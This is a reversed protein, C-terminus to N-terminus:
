IKNTFGIVILVDRLLRALPELNQANKLWVTTLAHDGLSSIPKQKCHTQYTNYGDQFVFIVIVFMIYHKFFRLLLTKDPKFGRPTASHNKVRYFVHQSNKSRSWFCEQFLTHWSLEYCNHKQSSTPKLSRPMQWFTRQPAPLVSLKIRSDVALIAEMNKEEVATWVYSKWINVTM